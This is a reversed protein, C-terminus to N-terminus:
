SVRRYNYECGDPDIFMLVDNLISFEYTVIADNAITIKIQKLGVVEFTGVDWQTFTGPPDTQGFYLGGAQFQITNPYVQSCTSRTIKEWNGILTPPQTPM